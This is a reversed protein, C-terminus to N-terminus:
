RVPASPVLLRDLLEDLVRDETTGGVAAALRLAAPDFLPSGIRGIRWGAPHQHFAVVLGTPLGDRLLLATARGGQIQPSTWSFREAEAASVGGGALARAISGELSGAALVEPDAHRRLVRVLARDEPRLAKLDADSGSRALRLLQGYHARAREGLCAVARQADGATLAARLEVLTAEPGAAVAAVLLLAIGAIAVRM